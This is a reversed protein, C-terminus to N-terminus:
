QELQQQMELIKFQATVNFKLVAIRLSTYEFRETFSAMRDRNQMTTIMNTYKTKIYIDEAAKMNFACCMGQDTPHPTFIASCSITIGKWECYRLISSAGERNQGEQLHFVCFKM